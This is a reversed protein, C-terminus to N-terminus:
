AVPVNCFENLVRACETMRQARSFDKVEPKWGAVVKAPAQSLYGTYTNVFIIHAYRAGDIFKSTDGSHAVSLLRQIAALWNIGFIHFRGPHAECLETLEDLMNGDKERMLPVLGGIGVIEHSELYADLHERPGGWPWVPLVVNSFLPGYKLWNKYTQEPDGIVDPSVVRHFPNEDDIRLLFNLDLPKDAKFARYAGSDLIKEGDFDLLNVMDFPDAVIYKVGADEIAKRETAGTIGSFYLKM